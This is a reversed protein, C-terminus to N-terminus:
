FYTDTKTLFIRKATAIQIAYQPVSIKCIQTTKFNQRNEYCFSNKHVTTAINLIIENEISTFKFLQEQKSRTKIIVKSTSYM